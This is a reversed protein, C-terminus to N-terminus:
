DASDDSEEEAHGKRRSKPPQPRQEEPIGHTLVLLNILEKQSLSAYDSLHFRGALDHLQDM